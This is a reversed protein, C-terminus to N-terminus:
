YFVKGKISRTLENVAGSLGDVIDDHAGEPFAHVQSL